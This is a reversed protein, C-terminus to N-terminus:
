ERRRTTIRVADRDFEISELLDLDEDEFDDYPVSRGRESEDLAFELKRTHICCFSVKVEGPKRAEITVRSSSTLPPVQHHYVGRKQSTQPNATLALV